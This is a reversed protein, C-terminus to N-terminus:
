TSVAFLSQLLFGLRVAARKRKRKANKKNTINSLAHIPLTQASGTVSEEWDFEFVSIGTSFPSSADTCTVPRAEKVVASETAESLTPGEASAPEQVVTMFKRSLREDIVRISRLEKTAQRSDTHKVNSIDFRANPDQSRPPAVSIVSTTVLQTLQQQQSTMMVVVQQQQPLPSPEQPNGGVEKVLQQHHQARPPPTQQMASIEMVPQAVTPQQSPPQMIISGQGASSDAGDAGCADGHCAASAAATASATGSRAGGGGGSAGTPEQQQQPEAVVVVPTQEM